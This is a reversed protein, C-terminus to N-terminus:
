LYEINDDQKIEIYQELILKKNDNKYLENIEQEKELLIEFITIIDKGAILLINNVDSINKAYSLLKLIGKKPFKINKASNKPIYSIFKEFYINNNQNELLYELKDTQFNYNFIIIIKYFIQLLDEKNTIDETFIENPNNALINIKNKVEENIDKKSLIM